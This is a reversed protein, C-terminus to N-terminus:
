NKQDDKKKGCKNQKMREMGNVTREVASDQVCNVM